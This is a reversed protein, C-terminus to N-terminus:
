KNSLTPKGRMNVKKELLNKRDNHNYFVLKIPRTKGQVKKGLRFLQLSAELGEKPLEMGCEETVAHIKDM